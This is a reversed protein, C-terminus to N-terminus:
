IIKRITYFDPCIKRENQWLACTQCVVSLCFEWREVADANGANHYFHQSYVCKHLLKVQM